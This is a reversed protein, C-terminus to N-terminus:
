VVMFCLNDNHIIELCPVVSKWNNKEWESIEFFSVQHVALSAM